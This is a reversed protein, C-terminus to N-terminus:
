LCRKRFRTALNRYCMLFVMSLPTMDNSGFINGKYMLVLPVATPDEHFESLDSKTALMVLSHAGECMSKGSVNPKHNERVPLTPERRDVRESERLISKLKKVLNM